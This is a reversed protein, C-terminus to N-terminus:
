GDLGGSLTLGAPALSYNIKGARQCHLTLTGGTRMISGPAPKQSLIKGVGDLSFPVNLRALLLAAQRSSMGTMDPTRFDKAGKALPQQAQIAVVSGPHLKKGSAPYQWFVNGAYCDGRVQVRLGEGKRVAAKPTLGIFKPAVVPTSQSESDREALTLRHSAPGFKSPHSLAYREAIQRFTPGSTHGGYHIPEPQNLLVIGAIRPSDYPFFGAFSANFKHKFYGKGGPRPVEATGTKGAISVIESRVRTATGSDVVSKLMAQLPAVSQADMVRWLKEPRVVDDIAGGADIVGRVLHPRYLTGGNAVASMVMAMQLPTVSVSHGISLAAINYDSWRMDSHLVGGKERPFGVMTKQGIGFRQSADALKKGGLAIALKAVGINSSFAIIDHFSLLGHEEDDNLYRRGCLWRGGECDIVSDVPAIREDLVAAATIVKYISGPEFVDNVPQLKAPYEPDDDPNYGAIALIEGTNCDVFVASGGKANYRETAAKLEEEVIEQFEWDITLALSKGPLPPVQARENIQYFNSLGDKRGIARGSTGSLMKNFQWEIGTKGEHEVDTFGLIQKGITGYPYKREQEKRIFAGPISDKLIQLAMKESLGSRIWTVKKEKIKRRKSKYGPQGKFLRDFYEGAKRAKRLTDSYVYARYRIVDVAVEKRYRDYITGRPAPIKITGTSQRRARSAYREGDSVQIEWLRLALVSWVLTIGVLAVALRRREISTNRSGASRRRRGTSM